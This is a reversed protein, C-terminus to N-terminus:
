KECDSQEIDSFNKLECDGQFYSECGKKTKIRDFVWFHIGSSSSHLGSGSVCVFKENKMLRKMEDRTAACGELAWPKRGLFESYVGNLNTKVVLLSYRRMESYDIENGSCIVKVNKTEFCQWAPFPSTSSPHTKKYDTSEGWCYSIMLDEASLIGFDNTLLALPFDSKSKKGSYSQSFATVVMFILLLAVIVKQM